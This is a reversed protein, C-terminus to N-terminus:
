ESILIAMRSGGEIYGDNTLTTIDVNFESVIGLSEDDLMVLYRYLLTTERSVMNDYNFAKEIKEECLKDAEKSTLRAVAEKIESDSYKARIKEYEDVMLYDFAALDGDKEMVVALRACIVEDIQVRFQYTDYYNNCNVAMESVNLDLYRGALEMAKARGKGSEASDGAPPQPLPLVIQDVKDTGSIVRFWAGPAFDYYDSEYNNYTDKVSYNYKGTYECGNFSVTMTRPADKNEHINVKDYSWQDCEDVHVGGNISDAMISYIEKATLNRNKEQSASFVGCSPLILSICLMMLLLIRKNTKNM